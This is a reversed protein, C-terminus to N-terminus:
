GGYEKKNFHNFGKKMIELFKISQSDPIGIGEIIFKAITMYESNESFNIKYMNGNRFEPIEIENKASLPINYIKLKELYDDDDFFVFKRWCDSIKTRFGIDDNLNFGGIELVKKYKSLIIIIMTIIEMGDILKVHNGFDSESRRTIPPLKFDLNNGGFSIGYNQQEVTELPNYKDLLYEIVKSDQYKEPANDIKFEYLPILFKLNGNDFIEVTTSKYILNKETLPRIILSRESSFISNFGFNLPIASKFDQIDVQLDVNQYFVYAVQKFFDSSYFEKLEFGNFPIPMLFLELYTQNWDSQGKTEPLEFDTFREISDYYNQTRENLRELIYRDKIPKSENNERQYIIGQSTIYPPTPSAEVQIVFVNKNNSLPVNKFHYIPNPNINSNTLQSIQDEFNKYQSLDVGDIAIPKNKNDCEIGWFIWGGKTNAFSSISKAIKLNDLKSSKKPIEKKYEIYWGEGIEKEILLRLDNEELNSIEKNFPNYTM